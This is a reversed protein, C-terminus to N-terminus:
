NSHATRLSALRWGFGIVLRSCESELNTVVCGTAPHRLRVIRQTNRACYTRTPPGGCSDRGRQDRTAYNDKPFLWHVTRGGGDAIAFQEAQAMKGITTFVLAFAM